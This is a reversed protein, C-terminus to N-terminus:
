QSKKVRVSMWLDYSDTSADHRRYYLTKGDSTLCPSYVGGLQDEPDLSKASSFSEHNTARGAIQPGNGSHFFLASGDSSLSPSGQWSNSNIGADLHVPESWMDETSARISMWIDFIGFKPQRTSAFLLTLGDASLTPEVDSGSSNVYKLPVSQTWDDDISQRSSTWLNMNGNSRDSAFFLMLGDASLCPAEDSEPSNIPSGLNIAPQWADDRSSRVSMWIDNGGLGGPRNSHFLLTLGDASLVPEFENQASNIASGLKTPESWETDSSILSDAPQSEFTSLPPLRPQQLQKSATDEEGSEARYAASADWVIM